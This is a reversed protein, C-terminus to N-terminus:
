RIAECSYVVSRGARLETEVARALAMATDDDVRLCGHTARLKGDRLPGGHIALGTRGHRKATLADGSIGDLRIRVPGYMAREADTTSWVVGTVRSEGSPHDGFVETSVEDPNGHAAATAGDADAYARAPSVTPQEAFITGAAVWDSTGPRQYRHLRATIKM